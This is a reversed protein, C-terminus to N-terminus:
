EMQMVMVLLDVAEITAALIMVDLFSRQNKTVQYYM